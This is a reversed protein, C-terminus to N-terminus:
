KQKTYMLRISNKPLSYNCVYGVGCTAIGTYALLPFQVCNLVANGSLSNIYKPDTISLARSFRM